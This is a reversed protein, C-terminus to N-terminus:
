PGGDKVPAPKELREQPQRYMVARYIARMDERVEKQSEEVKDQREAVKAAAKEGAAEARSIFITYGGILAGGAAVIAVLVTWMENLRLAKQFVARTVPM